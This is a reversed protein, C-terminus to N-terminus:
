YSIWKEAYAMVKLSFWEELGYILSTSVLGQWTYFFFWLFSSFSNPKHMKFLGYISRRHIVTNKPSFLAFFLFLYYLFGECGVIFFAEIWKENM